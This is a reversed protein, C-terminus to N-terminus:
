RAKIKWLSDVNEHKANPRIESCGSNELSKGEGSALGTNNAPLKTPLDNQWIKLIMM